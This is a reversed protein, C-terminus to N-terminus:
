SCFPPFPLFFLCTMPYKENVEYLKNVLAVGARYQAFETQNQFRYYQPGSTIGLAACRYAAENYSYVKRFISLQNEYERRQSQSMQQVERRENTNNFPDIANSPDTAVILAYLRDFTTVVPQAFRQQYVGGLNFFCAPPTDGLVFTTGGSLELITACRSLPPTLLYPPGCYSM